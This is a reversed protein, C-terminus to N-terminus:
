GGPIVFSLVTYCVCFALVLVGIAETLGIRKKDGNFRQYDRLTQPQERFSHMQTNM